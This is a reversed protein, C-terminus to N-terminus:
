SLLQCDDFESLTDSVGCQKGNIIPAIQLSDPSGSLSANTMNLVYTRGANKGPFLLTVGYNGNPYDKLYSEQVDSGLSFSKTSGAGAVSVLIEDVEIDGINISFQIEQASSNYCTYSNEIVVKDFIGFCSESSEIEEEVLNSVVVWVVAVIAMVLAIMIVMAIVPSIGKRNKGLFQKKRNKM